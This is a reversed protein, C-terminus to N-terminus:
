DSISTPKIIGDIALDSQCCHKIMGLALILKILKNIFVNIM